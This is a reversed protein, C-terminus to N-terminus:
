LGRTERPSQGPQTCLVHSETPFLLLPGSSEQSHALFRTDASRQSLGSPATHETSGLGMPMSLEVGSFKGSVTLYSTLKGKTGSM